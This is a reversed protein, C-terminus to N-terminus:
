LHFCDNTACLDPPTRPAGSLAGWSSHCNLCKFAGDYEFVRKHPGFDPEKELVEIPASPAEALAKKLNETDVRHKLSRLRRLEVAKELDDMLGHMDHSDVEHEATMHCSDNVHVSLIVKM